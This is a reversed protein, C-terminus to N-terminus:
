SFAEAGTVSSRGILYVPVICDLDRSLWGDAEGSTEEWATEQTEM